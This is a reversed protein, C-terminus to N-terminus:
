AEIKRLRNRLTSIPLGTATSIDAWSVGAERQSQIAKLDSETEAPLREGEPLTPMARTARTTPRTTREALQRQLDDCMDQLGALIPAVKAERERAQELEAALVAAAEPLPKAQKLAVLQEGMSRHAESLVDNQETVKAFDAELEAIRGAKATNDSRLRDIEAELEAIKAKWEPATPTAEAPEDNKAKEAGGMPMIIATAKASEGVREILLPKSDDFGYMDVTYEGAAAPMTAVMTQLLKVMLEADFRVRYKARSPKLGRLIDNVPPFKRDVLRTQEIPFSDYDTAGFTAQEKGLVVAVTQLEPRTRNKKTLKAASTFFSKWSNQPILAETSGNPAAALAPNTPYDDASHCQGTIRLLCKTDTAEALFTNGDELKVHIGGLAYRANNNDCLDALRALSTPLLHM